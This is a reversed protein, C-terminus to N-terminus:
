YCLVPFLHAILLKRVVKKMARMTIKNMMGIQLKQTQEQNSLLIPQELDDINLNAEHREFIKGIIHM